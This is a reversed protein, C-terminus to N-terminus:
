FSVPMRLRSAGRKLRWASAFARALTAGAFLLCVAYRAKVMQMLYRWM